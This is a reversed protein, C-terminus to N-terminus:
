VECERQLEKVVAVAGDDASEVAFIAETYGAYM